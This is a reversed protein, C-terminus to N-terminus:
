FIPKYLARKPPYQFLPKKIIENEPEESWFILKHTPEAVEEILIASAELNQRFDIKESLEKIAQQRNEIESKIAPFKLWNALTSAGMYTHTRNLLKFLSQKGFIDLDSTYFHNTEAFQEGTEPRTFINNLRKIEDENLAVLTRNKDRLYKIKLHKKISFLFFAIGIIVVPIVYNGGGFQYVAYSILFTILFLIARFIAWQNYQKQFQEALNHFTEERSQFTQIPTM